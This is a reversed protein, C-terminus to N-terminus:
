TPVKELCSQFRYVVVMALVKGSCSPACTVYVTHKEKIANTPKGSTHIFRKSFDSRGSKEFRRGSKEFRELTEIKRTRGAGSLM